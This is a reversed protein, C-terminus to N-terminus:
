SVATADVATATESIIWLINSNSFLKQKKFLLPSTFLLRIIYEVDNLENSKNLRSLPDDMFSMVAM